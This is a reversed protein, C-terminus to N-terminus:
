VREHSWSSSFPVSRYPGHVCMKEIVAGSGEAQSHAYCTSAHVQASVHRYRSPRELQIARSTQNCVPPAVSRRRQERCASAMQLGSLWIYFFPPLCPFPKRRLVLM